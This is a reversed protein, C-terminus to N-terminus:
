LPDVDVILSVRGRVGRLLEALNRKSVFLHNNRAFKLYFCKIYEGRVKDVPPAFPGTLELYQIHQSNEILLKKLDSCIASLKDNNKHRIILKVMRVFPAFGFEKRENLLKLMYDKFKASADDSKNGFEKMFAKFVPHNASSTQIIFKGRTERRGTRGMIQRLLQMAREDARFDEMGVMSEAQMVVVMSLYPFDFGKSIMQTGVLIRIEGDTFAKLTQQQYKISKSSDADYRAIRINPFLTALEEEIKETGTGRYIFNDGGCADCKHNFVRTYECHHCVLTNTSKHYSLHVNCHPCVPSYGCDFCEIQPSYSRRNRFLMIQGGNEIERRMLNILQLSFNGVMQNTKRAKLTDIVTIKPTTAGYYTQNLEVMAYKSTYVNYLTELSPTASGLIIKAGHLKALMLAADRGNYRPNPETQKYSADHEEDVIILGLNRYPLFISSRTGLVVVPINGGDAPSCEYRANGEADQGGSMDYGYQLLKVIFHKNAPTQQSHYTVVSNGFVKKLRLQLQRSLSIEPVMFLVQKGEKLTEIALNIYIETKGSGTVGNLLVPRSDIESKIKNYATEQSGSLKCTKLEEATGAEGIFKEPTKKAKVAEQRFYSDPYAAKLIEGLTCMYYEALQQWFIIEGRSVPSYPLIQSIEKYKIASQKQNCPDSRDSPQYEKQGQESMTKHAYSLEAVVGKVTKGGFDVEVWSGVVVSRLFREPVIYSAESSYKVPVIIGAMVAESGETQSGVSRINWRNLINSNASSNEGTDHAKLNGGNIHEDSISM